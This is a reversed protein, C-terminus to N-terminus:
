DKGDRGSRVPERRPAPVYGDNSNARVPRYTAYGRTARQQGTGILRPEPAVRESDVM